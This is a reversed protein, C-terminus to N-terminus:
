PLSRERLFHVADDITEVPVIEVEVAAERADDYNAAPVMFYDAGARQAAYAKLRVGGVSGVEGRVNITGTCALELDGVLSEDPTLLDILTLAFALGSSPGGINGADIEVDIPFVFSPNATTVGIGIIGSERDDPSEILTIAATREADDDERRFAVELTDGPAHAGVVDLLDDTIRTPQGGAELIVDGPELIDAALSDVRINVVLVGDGDFSVAYGLYDLAAFKALEQSETMMQRTRELYDEFEEGPRLYSRVPTMEARPYFGGVIYLLANAERTIVTTLMIRGGGPISVADDARVMGATDTASGPVSIMLDTPILWLTVMLAAVVGLVVLTRRGISFRGLNM